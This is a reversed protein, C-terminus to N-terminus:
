YNINNLTKFITTPKYKVPKPFGLDIWEKHYYLYFLENLFRGYGDEIFELLLEKDKKTWEIKNLLLEIKNFFFLIDSDSTVKNYNRCFSIKQNLSIKIM